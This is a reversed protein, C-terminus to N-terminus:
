WVWDWFRWHIAKFWAGLNCWLRDSFGECERSSYIKVRGMGFVVQMPFPSKLISHGSFNSSMLTSHVKVDRTWVPSVHVYRPSDTREICSRTPPYCKYEWQNVLSFEQPPSMIEKDASYKQPHITTKAYFRIRLGHTLLNKELFVFETNM